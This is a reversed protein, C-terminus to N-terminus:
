HGRFRPPHSDRVPRSPAEPKTFTIGDRSEAYCYVERGTKLRQNEVGLASGRYYLRYRSGDQIISHYGSGAGEWPADHVIAVERPTPHQLQRRADKLSEILHGDVFLERRSGIELPGDAALPLAAWVVLLLTTLGILFRQM